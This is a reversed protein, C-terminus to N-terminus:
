RVTDVGVVLFKQILECCPFVLGLNQFLEYSWCCHSLQLKIVSRQEGFLHLFVKWLVRGEM